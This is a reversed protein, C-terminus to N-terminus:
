FKSYYQPCTFAKYIAGFENETLPKASSILAEDSPCLFPAVSLRPYHWVSKYVGNSLAQLQDGLNIVFANLVPNVAVRKDDKLVQLGAVQLDQLLTTLANAQCDM